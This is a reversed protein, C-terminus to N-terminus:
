ASAQKIITTNYYYTEATGNKFPYLEAGMAAQIPDWHSVPITMINGNAAIVCVQLAPLGEWANKGSLDISTINVIIGEKCRPDDSFPVTVNSGDGILAQDYGGLTLSGDRSPSTVESGWFFSYSKSSIKQIDQLTKLFSSASGLGIEGKQVFSNVSNTRIGFEYQPLSTNDQLRIDDKTWNAITDDYFHAVLNPGETETQSNSPDYLGGRYTACRVQSYGTPCWGRPPGTSWLYTDNYWRSRNHARSNGEPLYIISVRQAHTYHKATNYWWNAM